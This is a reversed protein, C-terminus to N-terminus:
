HSRVRGTQGIARLHSCRLLRAAGTDDYTLVNTYLRHASMRVKSCTRASWKDPTRCTRTFHLRPLSNQLVYCEHGGCCYNKAIYFMHLETNGPHSQSLGERIQLWRLFGVRHQLSAYSYRAVSGHLHGQALVGASSLLAPITVWVYSVHAYEMITLSVMSCYDHMPM